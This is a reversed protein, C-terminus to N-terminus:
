WEKFSDFYQDWVYLYDYLSVVLSKINSKWATLWSTDTGPPSKKEVQTTFIAETEELLKRLRAAGRSPLQCYLVGEPSVNTVRVDEYTANVQLNCLSGHLIICPLHHPQVFWLWLRFVHLRTLKSAVFYFKLLHNIKQWVRYSCLSIYTYCVICMCWQAADLVYCPGVKNSKIYTPNRSIQKEGNWNM